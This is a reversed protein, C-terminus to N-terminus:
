EMWWRKERVFEFAGLDKKEVVGLEELLPKLEKIYQDYQGKNHAKGELAELIRVATAFTNMKRSARLADAIVEVSPVWDTSFIHNLGRELEFDDEATQFHRRWFSVYKEYASKDSPDLDHATPDLPHRTFFLNHNSLILYRAIKKNWISLIQWPPISIPIVLPDLSQVTLFLPFLVCQRLLFLISFSFALLECTTLM